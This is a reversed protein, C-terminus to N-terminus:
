RLSKDAKPRPAGSAPLPQQLDAVAQSLKSLEEQLRKSDATLQTNLEQSVELQKRFLAESTAQQKDNELKYERAVWLQWCTMLVTVGISLYIAKKALGISTNTAKAGDELNRVWQPIVETLFLTHLKGLQEVMQGVLGSVEQLQDASEEAAIAARGMPTEEMRPLTPSRLLRESAIPSVFPPGKDIESLLDIPKSSAFRDRDEQFKRLTESAAFTGAPDKVACSFLLDRKEQVERMAEVASSMKLAERIASLGTLNEGLAAKLTASMSGFSSNLTEKIKAAAQAMRKGQEALQDFVAAGLAKLPDGDSLLAVNCAKSVGETLVKIDEASLKNYVEDTLAPVKDAEHNTCVLLKLLREGLARLDASDKNKEDFYESFFKIDGITIHRAFFTGQSTEVPVRKRQKQVFAKADDNTPGEGQEDTM